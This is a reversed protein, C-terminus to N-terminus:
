LNDILRIKGLYFAIFINFSAKTSITKTMNHINLLDVYDIKKIGLQMIEMKIKKASFEYKKQKKINKKIKKILKCVKSAINKQFITLNHNRTSCPLGNKERITKCSIIKVKINNKQTHRKILYLQQFDKRGLYISHPKIIELFRNVVNIVGEFHNKRFKGCLKGAFKDLYVKNKPKFSFIDYYNPLYVFDVNLKKLIALDKKISRPYTSYDKKSNFQKPNIFISVIVESSKKKAKKILYKHGEHLGGMTPVFSLKKISVLHNILNIKHKFIKM